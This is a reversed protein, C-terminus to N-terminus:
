ATATTNENWVGGLTLEIRPRSIDVSAVKWKVGNWEVYKIAPWHERMYGDALINIRNEIILNENNSDYSSAEWRRHRKSVNGYYPKEFIGSPVWVGPETEHEETEYGVVGYFRAM